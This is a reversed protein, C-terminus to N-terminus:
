NGGLGDLSPPTASVELDAENGAMMLLALITMGAYGGGLFAVLLWWTPVM